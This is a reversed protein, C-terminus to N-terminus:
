RTSILLCSQAMAFLFQGSLDALEETSGSFRSTALGGTATILDIIREGGQLVVSGPQAVRGLITARQSRLELVTIVVRPKQYWTLLERNLEQQLSAISKGRAVIGQLPGYFIKGDVGIHCSERTQGM